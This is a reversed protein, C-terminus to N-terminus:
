MIRYRARLSFHRLSCTNKLSHSATRTGPHGTQLLAHPPPVQRWGEEVSGKDLAGVQDHCEGYKLLNRCVPMRDSVFQHLFGCADGKM